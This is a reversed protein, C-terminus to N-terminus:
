PAPASSSSSRGRVDRPTPSRSRRRRLQNRAIDHQDLGAVPHGGIAPHDQRRRQLDLFGRQGPLAQRDALRGVRHGALVDRQAVAGTHRVHVRRDSAATTLQDHRGRAHVGLDAVDGVHEGVGLRALSRQLLLQVRQRLDDGRDRRDRQHDDHQQTQGAALREVRQEDGADCQCDRRDRRAQGRDHGRQQRHAGPLDRPAVRDHLPQRRDLRQPRRRRDARVLGAGQRQVLHSGALQHDRALVPVRDRSLAVADFALDPMDAALAVVEVRVQQRHHQACVGDEIALAQDAVRGLARQDHQAGLSAEVDVLGPGRKWSDGLHREVGLVLEHRREVLHRPVVAAGDDTAVDLTGGVDQDSSGGRDSIGVAGQHRDGVVVPVERDLGVVLDRRGTFADHHDRLAVELRPRNAGVALQDIQDLLQRQERHDADDVRRAGLSLRGDGLAAVGADPDPHDGAVM